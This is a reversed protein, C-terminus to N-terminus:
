MCMKMENDWKKNPVCLTVTVLQLDYAGTSDTAKVQFWPQGYWFPVTQGTWSVVGTNANITMGEPHNEACTSTDNPDDCHVTFSYSIPLANSSSSAEVKYSYAAGMDVGEVSPSSTIRVNTDAVCSGKGGWKGGDWQWSKGTPCSLNLEITQTTYGGKGDSVNVSYPFVFPGHKYEAFFSESWNVTVKGTQDITMESVIAGNGDKIPAPKLGLSYTLTDSDADSASIQYSYSEGLIAVKKEAPASAIVPDHNSSFVANESAIGCQAAPSKECSTKISHCTDCGIETGAPVKIVKAKFGAKKLKKMDFGSFDFVRAVPTKSLRTGKHDNGHCAACQDEGDKGAKKAYNNHWGGYTSQDTNTDASDQSTKWWYPDNVPHMNHPGGLVGSDTALDTMYIGGDLDAEKKFSDATHCVNCELITGTHGQLQLATVNDNSNPDRNPWVEHTGGHCAACAVDGHTDRSLRYLPKTLSEISYRTSYQPDVWDARNIDTAKTPQVAFRQMLPTRTTASPDNGWFARRMVGASFAESTGGKGTGAKGLNGDGMHCSGCDPQEMWEVRKVEGEPGPKPKNHAKGVAAMDGHCDYCTVGATYMRDRYLQERHGSHCRLCSQEMPLSTGNAAVTPFLSNPNVGQSLDWRLPRGSEERLIKNKNSPDLQLQAHFNHMSESYSPYFSLDGQQKGPNTNFSGGLGIPNLMSSHCWNCTGPSNQNDMYWVMGINDYFDHMANANKVAAYEQDEIADSPNGDKDVADFFAPPTFTDNCVTQPCHYEANYESSSHYAKTFQKYYDPDTNAAIKGKAHCERCHFDKGVALVADTTAKVVNNQPDVAQVRMLPFPNVRGSDDIDMIPLNKATHQRRDENYNTFNQWDNSTYPNLVGPMASGNDSLLINPGNLNFGIDPAITIAPWIFSEIWSDGVKEAMQGGAAGKSHEWMDTKQIAASKFPTAVPWNQSTSNISGAGVPDFKNSAAAYRLRIGDKTLQQPQRSKIYAQANLSNFAGHTSAVYLGPTYRADGHAQFTLDPYPLVVVDDAKGELQSGKKPASQNASSVLASVNPLDTPPTGVAVTITDECRRKQGDTASFHVQYSADNRVFQVTTKLGEPRKYAPPNSKPILEGMVGGSFDWEYQLPGAKKDKLTATASFAVDKNIELGSVGSAPSTIKCVPTKGCNKKDIGGIPKSVVKAGDAKASVSCLLEPRDDTITAEFKHTANDVTTSALLRGSSDYLDVINKTANTLKGKVKLSGNTASWVASSISVKAAAADALNSTLAFLLFVLRSMRYPTMEM